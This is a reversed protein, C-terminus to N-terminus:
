LCGLRGAELDGHEHRVEWGPIATRANLRAAEGLTQSGPPHLNRDQGRRGTPQRHGLELGVSAALNPAKAGRSAIAAPLEHEPQARRPPEQGMPIPIKQMNM